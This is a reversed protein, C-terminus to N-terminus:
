RMKGRTKGRQAIGDARKSASSVRGGKKYRDSSEQTSREKLRKIAEVGLPTGLSKVLGTEADLVANQFAGFNKAREDQTRAKALNEEIKRAVAAREGPAAKSLMHEKVADAIKENRKVYQGIQVNETVSRTPTAARGMMKTAFGAQAAKAPGVFALEPASTELAQERELQRRYAPDRMDRSPKDMVSGGDDFKKRRKM